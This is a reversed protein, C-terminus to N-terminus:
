WMHMGQPFLKTTLISFVHLGVQEVCAGATVESLSNQKEM